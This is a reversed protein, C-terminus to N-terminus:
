GFIGILGIVLLLISFVGLVVVNIMRQNRTLWTRMSKMAAERCEVLVLFVVVPILMPWVMLLALWLVSILNQTTSLRAEAIVTAGVLVLAIFRFQMLSLVVGVGFLKVPGMKDLMTMFKPPPADPDDEGFFSRVALILLLLGFILFIVESYTSKGGLGTTSIHGALELSVVGWLVYVIYKGLIFALAKVLGRDDSLFLVVLGIMTPAIAALALPLIQLFVTGM